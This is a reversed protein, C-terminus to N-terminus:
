LGRPLLGLQRLITALDFYDSNRAIKSGRVDLVAVGRVSFTRGTGYIGQDTGSFVWEITGHGDKLSSNVLTM